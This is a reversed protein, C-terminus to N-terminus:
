NDMFYKFVRTFQTIIQDLMLVITLVDCFSQHFDDLEIVGITFLYM